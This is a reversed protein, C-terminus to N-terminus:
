ECSGPWAPNLAKGFLNLTFWGDLLVPFSRNRNKITDPFFSLKQNRDTVTGVVVICYLLVMQMEDICVAQWTYLM